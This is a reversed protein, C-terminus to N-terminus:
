KVLLVPLIPRRVPRIAVTRAFHDCVMRYRLSVPGQHVHSRTTCDTRACEHVGARGAYQVAPMSCPRCVARGAYQVAPMSCPRCVARGAYQVAPMSCPRCVARGAYQVAPMSCPRCVARGMSDYYCSYM